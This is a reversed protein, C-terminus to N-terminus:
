VKKKRLELGKELYRRAATQPDIGTNYVRDALTNLEEEDGFGTRFMQLLEGEIRTQMENRMQAKRRKELRSDEKLFQTHSWITDYLSDMGRNLSAATLLVPPKWEMAQSARDLMGEISASLSEAGPRDAKNVVFIDAIEMLGAKMMQVTDGSDPMLAVVVTDTAQAIDLESQGVGVTEVIIIEKGGADLIRSAEKTTEALGGMVRGASMSRFFVDWESKVHMRVRDGLLAGGSFPSCPDVAVVGVSHGGRCFLAVLRDTITSKGVGPPGTVGIYHAGGSHPYIKEMVYPAADDGREVLSILRATALKEGSLSQEVLLDIDKMM